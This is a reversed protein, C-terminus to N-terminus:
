IQMHLLAHLMQREKGETGLDTDIKRTRNTQLNELKMELMWIFYLQAYTYHM